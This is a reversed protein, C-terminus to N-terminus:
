TFPVSEWGMVWVGTIEDGDEISQMTVKGIHEGMRLTFEGGVQFMARLPPAPGWVRGRWGTGGVPDPELYARVGHERGECDTLIAHGNFRAM